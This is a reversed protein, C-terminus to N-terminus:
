DLASIYLFKKLSKQQSRLQNIVWLHDIRGYIAFTEIPVTYIVYIYLLKLLPRYIYLLKASTYIFCLQTVKDAM